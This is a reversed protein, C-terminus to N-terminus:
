VSYEEVNKQVNSHGCSRAMSRNNHALHISGVNNTIKMKSYGDNFVTLLVLYINVMHKIGDVSYKLGNTYYLCPQAM